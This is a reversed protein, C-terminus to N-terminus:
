ADSKDVTERVSEPTAAGAAGAAGDDSSGTGADMRFAVAPFREAAEVAIRRSATEIGDELAAMFDRRKLGPPIPPQFEATITGPFKLYSRRGWFLGSNLAVPIVPVGCQSYMAAIGPNYDVRQGPQTRTGEPFIIVPRGAALRDQTDRILSKLVSAGGERDVSIARCKRAYLGWIPINMLEKKMVYAPNPFMLFFFFTEWASQHKCAYIVGNPRMHEAGRVDFDLDIIWRLMRSQMRSWWAVYRLAGQTTTLLVPMSILLVLGTGALFFVNFVLSRLWIM